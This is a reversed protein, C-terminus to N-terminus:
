AKGGDMKAGCHKCYRDRKGIKGDCHSCTTFRRGTFPDDFIMVPEAHVVPAVDASPAEIVCSIAHDVGFQVGADFPRNDMHVKNLRNLIAEREIYEAM